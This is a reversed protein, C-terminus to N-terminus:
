RASHQLKAWWGRRSYLKSSTNRRCSRWSEGDLMYHESAAPLERTVDTWMKSVRGAVEDEFYQGSFRTVFSFSAAPSLPLTRPDCLFFHFFYTVPSSSSFFFLLHFTLRSLPPQLTCPLIVLKWHRLLPLSRWFYKLSLCFWWQSSFSVSSCSLWLRLIM